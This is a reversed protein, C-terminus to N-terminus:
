AWAWTSKVLHPQAPCICLRYRSGPLEHPSSDWATEAHVLVLASLFAYREHRRLGKRIVDVRVAYNITCQVGQQSLSQSPPLPDRGNTIYTPFSLSFDFSGESLTASPKPCDGSSSSPNFAEFIATSQSLIVQDSAAALSGGRSVTIEM